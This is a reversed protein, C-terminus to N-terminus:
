YAIPAFPLIWPLVTMEGPETVSCDPAGGSPGWGDAIRVKTAFKGNGLGRYIFVQGQDNRGVLDTRGDDNLDVGSALDFDTWGNGAKVKTAFRANGLSRYLYLDGASNIGLIDDQGDGTADGAPWLSFDQWGNGVKPYPHTFFGWPSMQYRYLDGSSNKVALIDYPSWAEPWGLDGAVVARYGSWGNGIQRAPLGPMPDGYHSLYGQVYSFMRGDCSLGIFGRTTAYGEYWHLQIPQLTQGAFGTGAVVPDGLVGGQGVPFTWLTGEQDIAYVAGKKDPFVWYALIINRLAGVPSTPLAREVAPEVTVVDVGPEVAVADVVVDVVADGTPAGDVALVPGSWVLGLSLAAGLAVWVRKQVSSM